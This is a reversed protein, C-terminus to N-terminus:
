SCRGLLILTRSVKTRLDLGTLCFCLAVGFDKTQLCVARLM